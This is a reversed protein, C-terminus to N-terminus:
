QSLEIKRNNVRFEGIRVKILMHRDHM